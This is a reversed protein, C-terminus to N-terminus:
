TRRSPLMRCVPATARERATVTMREATTQATLGTGTETETETPSGTATRTLTVRETLTARPTETKM